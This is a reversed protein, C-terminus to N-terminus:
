VTTITGYPSGSIPLSTTEEYLAHLHKKYFGELSLNDVANFSDIVYTIDDMNKIAKSITSVWLGYGTGLKAMTIKVDDSTINGQPIEQGFYVIFFNPLLTGRIPDTM